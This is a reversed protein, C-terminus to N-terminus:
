LMANGSFLILYEKYEELLFVSIKQRVGVTFSRVQLHSTGKEFSLQVSVIV